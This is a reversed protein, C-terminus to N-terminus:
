WECRKTPFLPILTLRSQVARVLLRYRALVSGTATSRQTPTSQLLLIVNHLEFQPTSDLAESPSAPPSYFPASVPM